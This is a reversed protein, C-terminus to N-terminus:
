VTSLVDKTMNICSRAHQVYMGIRFVSAGSPLIHRDPIFVDEVSQVREFNLYLGGSRVMFEADGVGCVCM